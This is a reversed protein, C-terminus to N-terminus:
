AARPAAGCGDQQDRLQAVQYTRDKGPAHAFRAVDSGLLRTLLGFPRLATLRLAHFFVRVLLGSSMLRLTPHDCSASPHEDSLSKEQERTESIAIQLVNGKSMMQPCSPDDDQM